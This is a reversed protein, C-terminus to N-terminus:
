AAPAPPSLTVTYGLRELRRVAQREVTERSREDFYNGGLDAYRRGPDKLLHYVTVLISHGVAVAARKAGRRAALRRYQAQYYSGKKRAAARAAEVLAQRLAGNGKRTRGSKRKGASEHQGPSMGAWSALHGASPFRSM